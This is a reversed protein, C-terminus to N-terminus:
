GPDGLRDATRSRGMALGLAAGLAV